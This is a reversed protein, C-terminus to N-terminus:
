NEENDIVEYSNEILIEKPVIGKLILERKKIKEKIKNVEDITEPIRPVIIGGAYGNDIDVFLVDMPQILDSIDYSADIFHSPEFLDTYEKYGFFWDLEEKETKIIRKSVTKEKDLIKEIKNIFGKETRVYMGAGLNM